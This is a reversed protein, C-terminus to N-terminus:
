FVPVGLNDHGALSTGLSLHIRGHAQQLELRGRVAFDGPIDPHVIGAYVRRRSKLRALLADHDLLVVDTWVTGRREYAQALLLHGDAPDYRAAVVVTDAKCSIDSV